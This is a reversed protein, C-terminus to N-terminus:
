LVMETRSPAGTKIQCTNDCYMQGEFGSEDLEHAPSEVDKWIKGSLVGEELVLDLEPIFDDSKRVQHAFYHENCGPVSLNWFAQKIM